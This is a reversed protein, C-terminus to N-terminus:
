GAGLPLQQPPTTPLQFNVGPLSSLRSKAMNPPTGVYRQTTAISKHRLQQQIADYEMGAGRAISAYSRRCDHPSIKFGLVKKSISIIIHSIGDVSLGKHPNYGQIGIKKHHDGYIIPQWLPTNETIYRPDDPLLDANYAAIYDDILQKARGDMDVPDINGRKGIVRILYGDDGQEIKSLTIQKLESLRLASTFAVYLLALDRKGKITALDCSRFLQSVQDQTLRRGHAYLASLNTKESPEPNQIALAEELHEKLRIVTQGDELSTTEIRQRKLQKIYLRVPALYKSAITSSKLGGSKEHKLHAIYEDLLDADPFPHALDPSAQMWQFFYKLGAEYVRKTHDTRGTSGLKAIHAAVAKMAKQPSFFQLWDYAHRDTQSDLMLIETQPVISILSPETSPKKMSNM